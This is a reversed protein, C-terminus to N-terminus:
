SQFTPFNLETGFQLASLFLVKQLLDLKWPFANFKLRIVSQDATWNRSVTKEQELCRWWIELSKLSGNDLLSWPFQVVGVLRQM